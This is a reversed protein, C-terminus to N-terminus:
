THKYPQMYVNVQQEAVSYYRLMHIDDDLVTISFHYSVAAARRSQSADPVRGAAKYPRPTQGCDHNPGPPTNPIDAFTNFCHRTAPWLTQLVLTHVSDLAQTQGCALCRVFVYTHLYVSALAQIWVDQVVTTQIADVFFTHM